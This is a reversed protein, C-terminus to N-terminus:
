PFPLPTGGNGTDFGFQQVITATAASGGTARDRATISTQGEIGGAGYTAFENRGGSISTIAGISPNSLSWSFDGSGGSATFNATGTISDITVLTQNLTVPSTGGGDDGTQQITASTRDGVTDTATITNNGTTTATYNATANGAGTISSIRGLSTSSLSWSYPPVGGSATFSTTGGAAAITVLTQNLSLVANTPTVVRPVANSPVTAQGFVPSTLATEIWTGRMTAVTGEITITGSITADAGSTSRGEMNFTASNSAAVQGITGGFVIGNDDIGELQDGAQRLDISVLPDGSTRLVVFSGADPHTYFGQVSLGVNRAGSEGSDIDCGALIATFVALVCGLGYGAKRWLITM